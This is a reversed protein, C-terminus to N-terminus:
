FLSLFLSAGLYTGFYAGFYFVFSAFSLGFSAGFYAGFYGGFSLLALSTEFYGELSAPFSEFSFGLYVGVLYSEFSSAL